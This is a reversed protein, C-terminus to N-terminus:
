CAKGPQGAEQLLPESKRSVGHACGLTMGGAGAGLEALRHGLGLRQLHHAGDGGVGGLHGLLGAELGDVQRAAAHGGVRQANRVQADAGHFVHQDVCAADGIGHLNRQHDVDVGAPAAGEVNGARHSGEGLGAGCAQVDLVLHLGLAAAV